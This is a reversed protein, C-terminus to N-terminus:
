LQTPFTIQGKFRTDTMYRNLPSITTAAARLWPVSLGLQQFLPLLYQPTQGACLVRARDLFFLEVCRWRAKKQVILPYRQEFLSALLTIPGSFVYDMLYGRYVCLAGLRDELKDLFKEVDPVPIDHRVRLVKDFGREAASRVGALSSVIQLNANGHGREEVPLLPTEIVVMGAARLGAKAEEPEEKWTSWICPKGAYCRGMEKWFTLPGQIVVGTM